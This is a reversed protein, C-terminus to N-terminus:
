CGISALINGWMCAESISAQSQTHSSFRWSAGNVWSVSATKSHEGQYCAVATVVSLRWWQSTVEWNGLFAKGLHLYQMHSASGNIEAMGAEEHSLQDGDCSAEEENSGEEWTCYFRLLGALGSGPYVSFVFLVSSQFGDTLEHKLLLNNRINFPQEM